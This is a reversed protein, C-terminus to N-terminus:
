LPNSVSLTMRCINSNSWRIGTVIKKQSLWSVTDGISIQPIPFSSIENFNYSLLMDDISYDAGEGLSSTIILSNNPRLYHHVNKQTACSLSSILRPFTITSPKQIIIQQPFFNETQFEVNSCLRSFADKYSLGLLTEDDVDLNLAQFTAEIMLCAGEEGFKKLFGQFIINEDESNSVIGISVPDGISPQLSNELWFAKEITIWATKVTSNLTNSVLYSFYRNVKKKGIVLFSDIRALKM